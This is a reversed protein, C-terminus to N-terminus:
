LVMGIKNDSYDGCFKKSRHDASGIVERRLRVNGHDRLRDEPTTLSAQDARGLSHLLHIIRGSPPGGLVDPLPLALYTKRISVIMSGMGM